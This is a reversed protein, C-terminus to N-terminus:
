PKVERLIVQVKVANPMKWNFPAARLDPRTKFYGFEKEIFERCARRTTFLTPHTVQWQFQGLFKVAWRYTKQDTM